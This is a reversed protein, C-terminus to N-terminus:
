RDFRSKREAGRGKDRSTAGKPTGVASSGASKTAAPVFEVKERQAVRKKERKENVKVLNEVYCQEPWRTRVGVEEPLTSVYSEEQNM